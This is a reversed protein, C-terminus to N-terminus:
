IVNFQIVGGINVIQLQGGTLPVSSVITGGTFVSAGPFSYYGGNIM